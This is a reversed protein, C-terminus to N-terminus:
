KFCGSLIDNVYSKLIILDFNLPFINIQHNLTVYFTVKAHCINSLIQTDSAIIFRLIHKKKCIFFNLNRGKISFGM